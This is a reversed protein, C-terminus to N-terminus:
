TTSMCLASSQSIQGQENDTLLRRMTSRACNRINLHDENDLYDIHRSYAAGLAALGGAELVADIDCDSIVSVIRVGHYQLKSITPHMQMAEVVLKVDIASCATDRDTVNSLLSFLAYCGSSQVSLHDPYKQMAQLITSLAGFKVAADAFPQNEWACDALFQSGKAQIKASETWKKMVALISIHGGAGNIATRKSEMKDKNYSINALNLAYLVVKKDDSWFDTLLLKAIAEDSSHENINETEKLIPELSGPSPSSSAAKPSDVIQEPDVGCFFANGFHSLLGASNDKTVM